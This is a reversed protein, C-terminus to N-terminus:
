MVPVRDASSAVQADSAGEGTLLRYLERANTEIDFRRQAKARGADGFRRRLGADALLLDLARSLGEADGPEVLLGNVGDDVIEPIGTVRSAVVPVGCALAELLVTPLSDRNGDEGIVAPMAFVAAARYCEPLEEQSRTGVLQVVESLGAARVEDELRARLEGYGVVECRFRRGRDRLLRCAAILTPFGKKEVLRGVALILPVEGDASATPAPAFRELDVGNHVVHVKAAAAAGIRSRMFALNFSTETVAFRAQEVKERLLRYDVDHSYIDRAHATFSYPLGTLQAALMTVRTAEHAFHAHVHTIGDERLRLALAGAQLLRRAPQLSRERACQTLAARAARRHRAADLRRWALQAGVLERAHAALPDPLYTVPARILRVAAHPVDEVPRRYSYIRLALGLRELELIENVIFTESTQPFM